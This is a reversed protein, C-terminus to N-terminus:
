REGDGDGDDDGDVFDYGGGDGLVLFFDNSSGNVDSLCWPEWASLAM